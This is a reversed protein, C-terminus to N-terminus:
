YNLQAQLRLLQGKQRNDPRLADEYRRDAVVYAATLELAEWPLWEAGVELERVVASTGSTAYVSSIRIRFM